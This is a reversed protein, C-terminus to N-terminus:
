QIEMKLQFIVPAPAAVPAAPPPAALASGDEEDFPVVSQMKLMQRFQPAQRVAQQFSRLQANDLIEALKDQPADAAQVVVYWWDLQSGSQRNPPRTSDILLEVLRKRQEGSMPALQDLAAVFLKLKARYHYSSRESAWRLYAARQEDDLVSSKVKQFLSGAGLVGQELRQALPRIEGYVESLKRQEYKQGVLKTRVAAVDALYRDLDGRGALLLKQRQDDSLNCAEDLRGIQATLQAEVLEEAKGRGNTVWSDYQAETLQFQQALATAAGCAVAAAIAGRLASM